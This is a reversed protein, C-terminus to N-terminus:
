GSNDNTRQVNRQTTYMKQSRIVKIQVKLNGKNVNKFNRFPLTYKALM